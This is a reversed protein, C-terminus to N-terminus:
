HIIVSALEQVVYDMYRSDADHNIWVNLIKEGIMDATPTQEVSNSELFKHVPPFWSSIRVKKALLSRLVEDRHSDLLLNARWPAADPLPRICSIGSCGVLREVLYAVNAHRVRLNEQLSDLGAVVLEQNWMCKTLAARRLQNALEVLTRTKSKLMSSGYWQNYMQTHEHSLADWKMEDDATREPLFSYATRIQEVLTVDDTLVAGGIGINIIKGHGFSVVSAIGFSGVPRGGITAGQAVAVDEILPIDHEECYHCLSEIDCPNGYAHVGMVADPVSTADLIHRSLGLTELDIDCYVPIAEAYKVALPVNLCVSSPIAVRKNALGLAQMTLTLGVTATSVLVCYKRQHLRCLALELESAM